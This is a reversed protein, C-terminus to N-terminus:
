LPESTLTITESIIIEMEFAFRLMCKRYLHNGYLWILQYREVLKFWKERNWVQWMGFQNARLKCWWLSIQFQFIYTLCFVKYAVIAFKNGWKNLCNLKVYKVNSIESAIYLLNVLSLRQYKLHYGNKLVVLIFVKVAVRACVHTLWFIM